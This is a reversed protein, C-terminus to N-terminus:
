VVNAAALSESLRKNLKQAEAILDQKTWNRAAMVENAKREDSIAELLEDTSIAQRETM